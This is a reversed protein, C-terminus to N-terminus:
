RGSSIAVKMTSSSIRVFRCWSRSSSLASRRRMSAKGDPMIIEFTVGRARVRAWEHLWRGIYEPHSFPDAHPDIVTSAGVFAIRIVGAPKNLAVEPGRWGFANTILGSPYHISRQFRFQPYPEGHPPEYLYLDDLKSFVPMRLSPDVCLARRVYAANWEYVSSLEFGPHGDYRRLIEPLIASGAAAGPRARVV